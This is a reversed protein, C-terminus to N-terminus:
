SDIFFRDIPENHLVTSRIWWSPHLTQLQEAASEAAADTPYLGFVTSGSGSMRALACERTSELAHLAKSIGPELAAAATALDNRLDALAAIPDTALRQIAENPIAAGFAGTRRAFVTATSLGVGPWVIVVPLPRALEVPMLRDGFGSIRWPRPVRCVPVDAGLVASGAMTAPDTNTVRAVLDLVAAADSSGGGLGAGSPLTKELMLRFGDLDGIIRGAMAVARWALNDVGTPVVETKSLSPVPSERCLVQLSHRTEDLVLTLLDGIDAFAVLSDLEHYGDPRRGIVHLCLNVKAPARAILGAHNTPPM